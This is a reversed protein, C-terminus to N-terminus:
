RRTKRRVVTAPSPGTRPGYECCSRLAAAHARVRRRVSLGRRPPFRSAALRAPSIQQPAHSTSHQGGRVPGVKQRHHTALRVTRCVPPHVRQQQEVVAPRGLPNRLRQEDVGLRHALVHAEVRRLATGPDLAQGIHAMSRHRARRLRLFQRGFERGPEIEHGLRDAAKHRLPEAQGVRRVRHRAQQAPDAKDPLPRLHHRGLRIGCCLAAEQFVRHSRQHCCGLGVRGLLEQEDIGGVRGIVGM